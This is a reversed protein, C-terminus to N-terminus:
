GDLQDFREKLITFLNNAQGGIYNVAILSAKHYKFCTEMLYLYVLDNTVGFDAIRKNEVGATKAEPIVM